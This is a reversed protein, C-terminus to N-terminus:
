SPYTISETHRAVAFGDHYPVLEFWEFTVTTIRAVIVFETGFIVFDGCNIAVAREEVVTKTEISFKM